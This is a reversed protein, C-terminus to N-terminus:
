VKQNNEKHELYKDERENIKQLENLYAAYEKSLSLTFPIEYLAVGSLETMIEGDINYSYPEDTYSTTLKGSEAPTLQYGTTNFHKMIEEPTSGIQNISAKPMGAVTAKVKGEFIYLYRKAGLMKFPTAIHKGTKKDVCEKDFEGLGKLFESRAKRNKRHRYISHNYHKIIQEAKHSPKYKLSDTDCYYVTCGAATLKYVLELLTKRAHSTVYIGWFPSLILKNIEKTYDMPVPDDHWEEDNSYTTKELRLKKCLLGFNTNVRSKAITYETTENLGLSKLREKEKYHRQLVDTVYRPLKGRKATYCEYVVMSEFRYYLRLIYLDLETLWLEVFDASILRGNDFVANVYSVIKNKSEITHQTTARVYDFVAHIIVCKDKLLAESFKCPEFPTVPYYDYLMRAPYDSRIDIQKAKLGDVGCYLANGHVYGGRFLYTFYTTYQEETPQLTNIYSLWEDYSYGHKLHLRDDRKVCHAKLEQKIEDQLISTFTMPVKRNPRIYNNFLYWMFESLIVVDNICYQEETKPDLPTQSNRQKKYDLDSHKVGNEDIMVLKQTTCYDKALQALNGGTITSVERFEIGHYTAKLPQYKEKAFFAWEDSDWELRKRLFQFEFGLNFVALLIHKHKGLKYFSVLADFFDLLHEWKRFLYVNLVRPTGISVQFHYAFALHRGDPTKVTTTEIDFGAFLELIEYRHEGRGMGVAALPKPFNYTTTSDNVRIINQTTFRMKM